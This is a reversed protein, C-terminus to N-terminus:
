LLHHIHPCIKPYHSFQFIFKSKRTEQIHNSIETSQFNSLYVVKKALVIKFSITVFFSEILSKQFPTLYSIPCKEAM